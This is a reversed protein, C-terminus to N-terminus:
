GSSGCWRAFLGAAMVLGATEARLVREGLNMSTFEKSAAAHQEVSTLGGEPGVIVVIPSSPPKGPLSAFGGTAQPCLMLRTFPRSVETFIRQALWDDFAIPSAIDMLRNRGCQESAAQV